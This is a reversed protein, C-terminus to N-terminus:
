KNGKKDQNELFEKCATDVVEYMKRNHKVAFLKIDTHRAHPIKIIALPKRKKAEM